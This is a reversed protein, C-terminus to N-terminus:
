TFFIEVYKLKWVELKGIDKYPIKKNPLYTHDLCSLSWGARKIFCLVKVWVKYLFGYRNHRLSTKRIRSMWSMEMQLISPKMNRISPAIKVNLSVQITEMTLLWVIQPIAQVNELITVIMFTWCQSFAFMLRWFKFPRIAPRNLDVSALSKFQIILNGICTFPGM